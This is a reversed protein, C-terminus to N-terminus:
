DFMLLFLQLVCVIIFFNGNKAIKKSLYTHLEAKTNPINIFEHKTEEAMKQL